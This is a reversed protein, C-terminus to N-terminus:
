SESPSAHADVHRLSLMAYFGSILLLLGASLFLTDVPGFTLGLVVPHFHGTLASDLAGAIMSGLLLALTSCLNFLSSVRGLLEQPTARLLLPGSVVSIAAFPIGAFFIVILAPAFSTLRAYILLLTGLTLTSGWLLRMLGIREGLAGALLAGLITGVGLAADLFGYLAPPTHLNHTVFFIDLAALIGGGLWAIVSLILLTQLLANKFLFTAGIRLEM